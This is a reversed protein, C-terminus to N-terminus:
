PKMAQDISCLHVQVICEAIVLVDISVNRYTSKELILHELEPESGFLDSIDRIEDIYVFKRRRTNILIVGDIETPKGMLLAYVRQYLRRFQASVDLNQNDSGAWILSYQPFSDFLLADLIDVKRSELM